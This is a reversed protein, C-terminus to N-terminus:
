ESKPGAEATLTPTSVVVVGNARAYSDWNAVLRGLVAPNAASVDRSEGADAALNYLKWSSSVRPDKSHVPADRGYIAKWNGVRVARKLHLEWALVDHESRVGDVKGALLPKWSKASPLPVDGVDPTEDNSSADRSTDALDVITPMIDRVSLPSDIIRQGVIGRGWIFAPVRVGGDEMEGKSKHYPAMAAQAWQSGYAIFSETTGMKSPDSNASAITALVKAKHERPTSKSTRAILAEPTIGEAGNDSMFIIVTNDYQGSERLHDLVRGVNQDLSDVMAAYIEMNRSQIDRQEQPLSSWDDLAALKASQAADNLLDLEIMRQLRASRLADPGADYRGQYKAILSTPAQLPWHPATFALYAFFPRDVEDEESLYEVLRQAFFDSSYAGVPFQAPRGDEAYVAALLAPDGNQGAGFHDASGRLLVFSRDFGHAPPQLEPRTGLHWKGTMFSRYGAHSLAEAITTTELNLYGEYGSHGQLVPLSPLVEAMAGMGVRHNDQGTLLMSRTPSCNPASYFSTFRIGATALADLNPTEIEGGFAGLDSLGLDDAVILLINPRQERAVTDSAREPSCSAIVAMLCLLTSITFTSRM